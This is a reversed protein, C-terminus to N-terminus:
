HEQTRPVHNGGFFTSTGAHFTLSIMVSLPASPGPQSMLIFASMEPLSVQQVFVESLSDM